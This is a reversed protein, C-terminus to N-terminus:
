LMATKVMQITHHNDPVLKGWNARNRVQASNERGTTSFHPYGTRCTYIVNWDQKGRYINGGRGSGVKRMKRYIMSSITKLERYPIFVFHVFSCIFLRLRYPTINAFLQLQDNLSSHLSCLMKLYGLDFLDDYSDVEVAFQTLHDM